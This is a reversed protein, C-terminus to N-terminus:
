LLVLPWKLWQAWVVEQPAIENTGNGMENGGKSICIWRVHEDVEMQNNKGHM